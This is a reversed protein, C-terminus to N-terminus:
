SNMNRLPIYDPCLSEVYPVPVRQTNGHGRFESASVRRKQFLRERVHCCGCAPVRDRSQM